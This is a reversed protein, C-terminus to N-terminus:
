GVSVRRKQKRATKPSTPTNKSAPAEIIIMGKAHTQRLFFLREPKIKAGLAASALLGLLSFVLAANLKQFRFLCRILSV